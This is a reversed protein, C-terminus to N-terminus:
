ESRTPSLSGHVAEAAAGWGLRPPEPITLEYETAYGRGGTRRGQRVVRIWGTAVLEKRARKISSESLNTEFRLDDDSMWWRAGKGNDRLSLCLGVLKANSSLNPATKAFRHQWEIKANLATM